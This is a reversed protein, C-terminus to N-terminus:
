EGALGLLELDKISCARLAPHSAEGRFPVGQCEGLSGVDLQYGSLTHSMISM